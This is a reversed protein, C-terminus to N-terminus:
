ERDPLAQNAEFGSLMLRETNGDLWLEKDGDNSPVKSETASLSLVQMCGATRRREKM